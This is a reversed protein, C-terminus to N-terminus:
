KVDEKHFSLGWAALAGLASGAGRAGWPDGPGVQFLVVHGDTFLQRERLLLDTAELIQLGPRSPDM